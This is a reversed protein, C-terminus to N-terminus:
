SSPFHLIFVFHEAAEKEKREGTNETRDLTTLETGNRGSYDFCEM